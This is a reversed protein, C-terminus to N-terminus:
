KSAQWEVRVRQSAKIEERGGWKNAVILFRVWVSESQAFWDTTEEVISERKRRCRRWTNTKRLYCCYDKTKFHTRILAWQHSSAAVIGVSPLRFSVLETGRSVLLCFSLSLSFSLLLLFLSVVEKRRLESVRVVVTAQLFFAATTTPPSNWSFKSLSNSGGAKRRVNCINYDRQCPHVICHFLHM